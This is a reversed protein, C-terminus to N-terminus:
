SASKSFNGSECDSCLEARGRYLVFWLARYFFREQKNSIGKLCLVSGLMREKLFSNPSEVIM